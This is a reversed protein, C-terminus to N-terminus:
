HAEERSQAISSPAWRGVISFVSTPARIVPVGDPAEGGWGPGVILFEGADSGTARARVYAFNNTWADGFQMVYYRGAADPVSFVVPQQGVDVQAWSYLTDTNIGVLGLQRGRQADFLERGHGFANLPAGLPIGPTTVQEVM